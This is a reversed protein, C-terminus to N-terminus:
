FSFGGKVLPRSKAYSVMKLVFPDTRKDTQRVKGSKQEETKDKSGGREAKHTKLTSRV